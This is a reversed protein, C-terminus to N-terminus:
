AATVVTSGYNYASLIPNATTALRYRWRIIMGVFQTPSNVVQPYAAQYEVSMNEAAAIPTFTDIRKYMNEVNTIGEPLPPTADFYVTTTAQAVLVNTSFDGITFPGPAINEEGTVSVIGADPDPLNPSAPADTLLTLGANAKALNVAMFIQRGSPNYAEGLRNVLEVSQGFSNWGDIATKGVTNWSAVVIAFLSRVDAQRLTNPNVPVTRNRAIAGGRVRSFTTGNISGRMEAVGNGFRVLAM